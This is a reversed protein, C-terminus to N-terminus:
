GLKQMLHTSKKKLLAKFINLYNPVIRNTLPNSCLFRHLVDAPQIRIESQGVATAYDEAISQILCAVTTTEM